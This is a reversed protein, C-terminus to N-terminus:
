KVRTCGKFMYRMKEVNSVNWKSIDTNLKSQYFTFEMLKVNSVDWDGVKSKVNSGYFMRSMDQVKSVNWASINLPVKLGAFTSVKKGVNSVDWKSVDSTFNQPFMYSMDNVRSVDWESINGYTYYPESDEPFLASVLYLKIANHLEKTSNFGAFKKKPNYCASSSIQDM